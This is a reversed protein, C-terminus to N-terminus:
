AVELRYTERAGTIGKLNELRRTLGRVRGRMRGISATDRRIDSSIVIEGGAATGQIRAAMNVVQGFYDIRNNLNVM